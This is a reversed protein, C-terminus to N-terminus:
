MGGYKLIGYVVFLLVAAWLAAIEATHLRHEDDLWYYATAIALAGAAVIGEALISPRGIIQAITILAYLLGGFLIAERIM